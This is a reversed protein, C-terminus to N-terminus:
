RVGMSFSRANSIGVIDAKSLVGSIVDDFRENCNGKREVGFEKIAITSSKMAVAYRM